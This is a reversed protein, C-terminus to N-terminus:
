SADQEPDTLPQNPRVTRVCPRDEGVGGLLAFTGDTTAGQTQRELAWLLRQVAARAEEARGPPETDGYCARLLNAINGLSELIAALDQDLIQRQDKTMPYHKM